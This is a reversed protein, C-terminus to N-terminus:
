VPVRRFARVKYTATKNSVYPNNGNGLYFARGKTTDSDQTSTWYYGSDGESNGIQFATISTQAPNGSTYNSTRPPIANPNIGVTTSNAAGTPKLNFYFIEIENTAPLYWDTYGGITLNDCFQAAPHAAAGAAIMAATNAAGDVVSATGPTDTNVTKLRLTTSSQATSKPGVVLYHTAVGSVGVQGAYYGGEYAAGIASPPPSGFSRQNMFSIQQAGSM